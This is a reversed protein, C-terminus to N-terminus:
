KHFQFFSFLHLIYPLEFLKKTKSVVNAIVIKITMLRKVKIEENNFPFYLKLLQFAYNNHGKIKAEGKITYDFFNKFVSCKLYKQM